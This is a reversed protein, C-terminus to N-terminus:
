PVLDGYSCALAIHPRFELTEGIFVPAGTFGTADGESTILHGGTYFIVKSQPLRALPIVIKDSDVAAVLSFAVPKRHTTSPSTKKM